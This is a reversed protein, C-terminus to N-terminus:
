NTFMFNERFDVFKCYIIFSIIVGSPFIQRLFVRLIRATKMSAIFGDHHNIIFLESYFPRAGLNHFM